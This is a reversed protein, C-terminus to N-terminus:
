WPEPKPLADPRIPAVADSTATLPSHTTASTQMGATRVAKTHAASCRSRARSLRAAPTAADTARATSAAKLRSPIKETPMNTAGTM